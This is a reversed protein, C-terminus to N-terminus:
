IYKEIKSQEHVKNGLITIAQEPCNVFCRYCLTCKGKSKAIGGEIFLNDMPCLETCRNCGICKATDIKVKESYSKVAGGFWARQGLFGIVRSISSLGERSASGSMFREAHYTLKNHANKVIAINDELSKKLLPSDGICDPMKIHTAGVINAGYSKFLRASCGSGDGSFLGMTVIIYIKKNRFLEGNNNIFDSVILPLSSYYIPYGFVIMENHEIENLISVDEISFTNSGGCASVFEEVCYKTNGTGSFYVGIM